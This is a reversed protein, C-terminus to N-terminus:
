RKLTGFSDERWVPPVVLMSSIAPVCLFLCLYWSVCATEPEFGERFLRRQIKIAGGKSPSGKDTWNKRPTTTPLSSLHTAWYLQKEWDRSETQKEVSFNNRSQWWDEPKDGRLAVLTRTNMSKSSQLIHHFFIANFITFPFFIQPKLASILAISTDRTKLPENWSTVNPFCTPCTSM